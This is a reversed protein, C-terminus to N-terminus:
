TIFNITSSVRSFRFISKKKPAIHYVGVGM